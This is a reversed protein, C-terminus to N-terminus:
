YTSSWRVRETTPNDCNDLGTSRVSVDCTTFNSAKQKVSIQLIACSDNNLKITFDPYTKATDGSPTECPDTPGLRQSGNGTAFSYNGAPTDCRIVVTGANLSFAPVGTEYQWYQACEMGMDSAGSAKLSAMETDSLDIERIISGTLSTAIYVFLSIALVTYILVYGSNDKQM